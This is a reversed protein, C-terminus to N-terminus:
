ITFPLEEPNIITNDSKPQYQGNYKSHAFCLMARYITSWFHDSKLTCGLEDIDSRKLVRIACKGMYHSSLVQICRAFKPLLLEPAVEYNYPLIAVTNELLLKIFIM